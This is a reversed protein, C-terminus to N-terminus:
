DDISRNSLLALNSSTADIGGSISIYMYQVQCGQRQRRCLGPQPAIQAQRWGLAWCGDLMVALALQRWQGARGTMMQDGAWAVAVGQGPDM